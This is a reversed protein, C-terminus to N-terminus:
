TSKYQNEQITEAQLLLKSARLNLASAIKSFTEITPQTRGSEFRWIFSRTLGARLALDDQSYGLEIRRARVLAGLTLSLTM